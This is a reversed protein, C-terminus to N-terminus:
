RGNLAGFEKADFAQMTEPRVNGAAALETLCHLIKRESDANLILVGDYAGITWYQAEVTVGAREAAKDFATARATSKKIDRAGKETFHILTIYRAM